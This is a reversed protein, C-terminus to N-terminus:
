FTLRREVSGDEKHIVVSKANGSKVYQRAGEVAEEKTTFVATARKNGAKVLAWNGNSTIVHANDASSGAERFKAAIEEKSINM